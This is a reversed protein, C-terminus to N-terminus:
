LWFGRKRKLFVLIPYLSLAGVLVFGCYGFLPYLVKILVSFKVLALPIMAIILLFITFRYKKSGAHYFRTAFGHADAVATTLMALWILGSIFFSCKGPLYSAMYMLPIEYTVIHPLCIFQAMVVLLIMSGMLIGGCFVGSIGQKKATEKGLSSLVSVAVIMNYSVYLLASLIAGNEKYTIEESFNNNSPGWLFILMCVLFIAIMKIPVLLANANVFGQNGKTLILYTCLATCVIGTIAPFGFQESFIAGSGALMILFGGALMLICLGDFLKILKDNLIDQLIGMYNETNKTIAILMTVVGLYAFLVGAIIAGIMGNGGYLTFFQMVEQGSAFGAGIMSGAYVMAIRYIRGLAKVEM